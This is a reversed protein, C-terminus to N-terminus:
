ILTQTIKFPRLRAKVFFSNLQVGSPDLNSRGIFYLFFFFWKSDQDTIVFIPDSRIGNGKVTSAFLTINYDVFEM